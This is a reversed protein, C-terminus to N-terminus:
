EKDFKIEENEVELTLLKDDVINYKMLFPGEDGFWMYIYSKTYWYPRQVLNPDINRIGDMVYENDSFTFTVSINFRLKWKGLFPNRGIKYIDRNLTEDIIDLLQSGRKEPETIFCYKGWRKKCFGPFHL